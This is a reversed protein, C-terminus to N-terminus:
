INCWMIIPLLMQYPTKPLGTPPLKLHKDFMFSQWADFWKELSSLDNEYMSIVTPCCM